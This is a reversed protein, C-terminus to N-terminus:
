LAEEFIPCYLYMVFILSPRVTQSLADLALKSVAKIYGSAILFLLQGISLKERFGKLGTLSLSSCSSPMWTWGQRAKDNYIEFDRRKGLIMRKMWQSNEMAKAIAGVIL